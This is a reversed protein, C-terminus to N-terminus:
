MCGKMCAFNSSTLLFMLTSSFCGLISSIELGLRLSGLTKAFQIHTLNSYALAWEAAGTEFGSGGNQWPPKAPGPKFGSSFLDQVALNLIYLVTVVYRKSVTCYVGHEPWDSPEYTQVPTDLLM